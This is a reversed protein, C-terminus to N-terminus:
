TSFAAETSVSEHDECANSNLKTEKSRCSAYCLKGTREPTAEENRFDQSKGQNATQQSHQKVRRAAAKRKLGSLQSQLHSTDLTQKPPAARGHQSAQRQRTM